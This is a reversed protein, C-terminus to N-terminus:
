STDPALFTFAPQRRSLGMRLPQFVILDRDILQERGRAHMVRIRFGKKTPLPRKTVAILVQAHDEARHSRLTLLRNTGHPSIRRESTERVPWLRQEVVEFLEESLDGIRGNVRNAFLDYHREDAVDSTLAVNERFRGLVTVHQLQGM